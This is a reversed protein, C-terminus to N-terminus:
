DNVFHYSFPFVQPCPFDPLPDPSLPRYSQPSLSPFTPRPRTVDEPYPSVVGPFSSLTPPSHPRFPRKPLFDSSAPPPCALPQQTPKPSGPEWPVGRRGRSRGSGDTHGMTRGVTSPHRGSLRKTSQPPPHARLLSPPQSGSFRPSQSPSLFPFSPPTRSWSSGSAM